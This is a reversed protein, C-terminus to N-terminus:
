TFIESNFRCANQPSNHFAHFCKMHKKMQLLLLNKLLKSNKTGLLAQSDKKKMNEQHNLKPKTKLKLMNKQKM